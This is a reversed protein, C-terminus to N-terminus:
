TSRRESCFMEAQRLLKDLESLNDDNLVELNSIANSAKVLQKEASEMQNRQALLSKGAENIMQNDTNDSM